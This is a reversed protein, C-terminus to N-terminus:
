VSTQHKDGFEMKVAHVSMHKQKITNQMKRNFIINSDSANSCKRQDRHLAFDCSNNKLSFRQAMVDHLCWLDEWTRLLKKLRGIM